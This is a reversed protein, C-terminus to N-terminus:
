NVLKQVYLSQKSPELEFRKLNFERYMKFRIWLRMLYNSTELQSRYRQKIELKLKELQAQHEPCYHSNNYGNSVINAKM